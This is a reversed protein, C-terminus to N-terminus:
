DNNEGGPQQQKKNKKYYLYAFIMGALSAIYAISMGIVMALGKSM